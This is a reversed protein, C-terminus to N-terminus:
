NLIELRSIRRACLNNHRQHVDCYFQYRSKNVNELSYKQVSQYLAEGLDKGLQPNDILRKCNNYWDVKSDVKLCNDKTILDLYPKVNSVIVAKKFFGAEIMKLESKYSNFRNDVLPVLSCDMLHYFQHYQLVPLGQIVELPSNNYNSLIGAYRKYPDSGDWGFLRMKYDKCNEKLQFALGSLLEVDKIHQHGGLYGFCYEKEEKREGQCGPLSMDMANPLVVVNKNHHAIQEALIETTCTVYDALLILKHLKVSIGNKRYSQAFSHEPNIVWHDDFDVVTPIGLNKARKLDDIEFLAIDKHWVILDFKKLDEDSLKETKTKWFCGFTVKVDYNNVLHLHPQFLRYYGCGRFEKTLSVLINLM